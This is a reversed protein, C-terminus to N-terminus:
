HGPSPLCSSSSYSDLPLIVPPTCVACSNPQYPCTHSAYGSDGTVEHQKQEGHGLWAGERGGLRERAKEQWELAESDFGQHRPQLHLATVVVFRCQILLQMLVYTITGSAAQSEECTSSPSPWTHGQCRWPVWLRAVVRGKGRVWPRQGCGPLLPPCRPAGHSGSSAPCTLANSLIRQQNNIFPLCM